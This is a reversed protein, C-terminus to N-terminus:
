EAKVFHLNEDYKVIYVANNQYGSLLKNSYQFKNEIYETVFDNESAKYMDDASALRLLADYTVDFGRVAYRNPLVGYKNKYSVLFPNKENFDYNKNVSPFTFNLKSLHMNSVDHYDYAKNKDLTLLRLNFNKPMGNLLGVVNSVLVPDSSVLLVWNEEGNVLKSAIDRQYLYGGERPSITKASPIRSTIKQKDSTHKSDSIVVLNKGVSKEVLYDLMKAKLIEDNPVTQFLNPYMRIERNSLPSFVPIQDGRLAAAAKDVNKSLLPGIVADTNKFNNSAIISGVKSASQETDFVQLNVSIGKDKAFETAMLVGSYFDLAIRLVSNSRVLEENAETSDSVVERLQFPLLLAINKESRNTIYDELNVVTKTESIAISNEKPIKLIMGDKLGEKAFPNLAIIEEESLGLKVKLRYFGEKPQVEYLDYKESDITASETGSVDPVNLVTGISINKDLGPNLNKLEAITTNYKRAIGYITEKPQVTHTKTDTNESTESTIVNNNNTAKTASPIRIKEGKKLQRSYLEKNYKKIDDQSVNYQQSISFLTEKRKVRHMKFTVESSANTGSVISASSPLIIITNTNIGNKADPNLRYIASETTGYKQAISFVTEGKAVRHSRYQQQQQTATGCGM